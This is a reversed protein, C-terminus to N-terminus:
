KDDPRKDDHIRLAHYISGSSVTAGVGIGFTADSPHMFMYVWPLIFSGVAMILVLWDSLDYGPPREISTVAEVQLNM